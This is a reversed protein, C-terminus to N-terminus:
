NTQKTLCVLSEVHGTMAFLDFGFVQNTTYGQDRFLKVDRALTSPNCSIYVIRKPALSSVFDIMRKDCGARPPDLIIVDPCIKKKLEKEAASLLKETEAADGAFFGANTIGQARANEKACEVASEVIEIGILERCDEAM